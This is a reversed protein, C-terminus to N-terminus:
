NEYYIIAAKKRLRATMQSFAEAQKQQELYMSIQGKVEDLQVTKGPTHGLVQIIHHGFETTVVPGIANKEQLFAADEFPKVTQGKKIEGLDGGNEKSPCDSNNRAVEAFDAGEVLKKRLDEIKAKKEAKIKEDDKADITVLIHRVHVTEETTFKSKNDVYFKNIEKQTPKTNKGTEMEVLKRIRIGLVIDGKTVHNEKLFDDIKKDPPINAKIQNMAAQIDKDTAAVKKNDAENTLITRMVFEEILQKKLGEQIEKKKDEPIKDKYLSMKTKISRALEDKKFVVGDVSVVVDKPEAKQPEIIAPTIAPQDLGIPSEAQTKEQPQQSTGKAAEDKKSCGSAAAILIVFIITMLSKVLIKNM